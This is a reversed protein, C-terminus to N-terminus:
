TEENDSVYREILRNLTVRMQAVTDNLVKNDDKLKANEARLEAILDTEKM